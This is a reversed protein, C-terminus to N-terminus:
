SSKNTWWWFVVHFTFAFDTHDPVNGRQKPSAAAVNADDSSSTKWWATFLFAASTLTVFRLFCFHLSFASFTELLVALARGRLLRAAIQVRKSTVSVQFPAMPPSRQWLLEANAEVASACMREKTGEPTKPERFVPTFHM